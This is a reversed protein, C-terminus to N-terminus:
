RIDVTRKAGDRMGNVDRKEMESWTKGLPLVGTGKCSMMIAAVSGDRTTVEGM